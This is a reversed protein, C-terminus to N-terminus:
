CWSKGGICEMPDHRFTVLVSGELQVDRNMVMRSEPLEACDYVIKYTPVEFRILEMTDGHCSCQIPNYAYRVPMIEHGRMTFYRYVSEVRAVMLSDADGKGFAEITMTYLRPNVKSFAIDYASDLLDLDSERYASDGNDFHLQLCFVEPNTWARALEKAKIPKESPILMQSSQGFAGVTLILFLAFAIRKM